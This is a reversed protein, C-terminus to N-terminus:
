KEGPNGAGRPLEARFLDGSGFRRRGGRAGPKDALYLARYEHYQQTVIIMRSAEFIDQARYVSDYTPFDRMIM